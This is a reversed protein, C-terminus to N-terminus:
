IVKERAGLFLKFMSIEEVREATYLETHVCYLTTSKSACVQQVTKYWWQTCINRNKTYILMLYCDM